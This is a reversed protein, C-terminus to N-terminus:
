PPVERKLRKAKEALLAKARPSKLNQYQSRLVKLRMERIQNVTIPM